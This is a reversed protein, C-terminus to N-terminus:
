KYKFWWRMKCQWQKPRTSSTLADSATIGHPSTWGGHVITDQNGPGVESQMSTRCERHTSELDPSLSDAARFPGTVSTEAISQATIWLPAEWYNKVSLYINVPADLQNRVHNRDIVEVKKKCKQDSNLCWALKLTLLSCNVSAGEIYTLDGKKAFKKSTDCTNSPINSQAFCTVFDALIGLFTDRLAALLAAASVRVAMKHRSNSTLPPLDANIAERAPKSQGGTGTTPSGVAFDIWGRFGARHALKLESLKPKVHHFVMKSTSSAFPLMGVSTIETDRHCTESDVLEPSRTCANGRSERRTRRCPQDQEEERLDEEARRKWTPPVFGSMPDDDMVIESPEGDFAALLEDGSGESDMDSAENVIVRLAVGELRHSTGHTQILHQSHTPAQSSVYSM